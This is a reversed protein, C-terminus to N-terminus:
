REDPFHQRLLEDAEAEPMTGEQTLRWSEELQILRGHIESVITKDPYDPDACTAHILRTIRLLWKLAARHAEVEAPPPHGLLIQRRQHDLFNQCIRSWQGVSERAWSGFEAPDELQNPVTGMTETM